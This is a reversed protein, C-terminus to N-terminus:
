YENLVEQVAKNLKLALQIAEAKTPIQKHVINGSVAVYHLVRENPSYGNIYRTTTARGKPRNM